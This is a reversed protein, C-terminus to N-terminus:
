ECQDPDGKWEGQRCLGVGGRADSVQLLVPGFRLRSAVRSSNSGQQCLLEDVCVDVSGFGAFCFQERAQLAALPLDVFDAVHGYGDVSVGGDGDSGPSALADFAVACFDIAVFAPGVGPHFHLVALPLTYGALLSTQFLLDQQPGSKVDALGRMLEPM